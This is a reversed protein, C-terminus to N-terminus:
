WREFAATEFRGSWYRHVFDERFAPSEYYAKPRNESIPMIGALRHTRVRGDKPRAHRVYMWSMNWMDPFKAFVHALVRLAGGAPREMSMYETVQILSQVVLKNRFVSDLETGNDITDVIDDFMARCGDADDDPRRVGAPAPSCDRRVGRWLFVVFAAWSWRNWNRGFVALKLMLESVSGCKALDSFLQRNDELYKQLAVANM